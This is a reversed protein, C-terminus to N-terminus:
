AAPRHAALASSSPTADGASPVTAVSGGAPGSRDSLRAWEQYALQLAQFDDTDGGKDPHVSLCLQRYFKVIDRESSSATVPPADLRLGYKAALRRAVSGLSRLAKQRQGTPMRLSLVVFVM